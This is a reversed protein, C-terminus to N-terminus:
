GIRVKKKLAALEDDIESGGPKGGSGGGGGGELQAFKSELDADSMGGQRLADDVERAAAVEAVHGEIKDEMRRFEAFAGAGSGRAGLGEAGGGAKAQKIQAAITGKRAELEQQKAEMRELERKMNLAAARQEARLAEARDREGVVRKKQVLAERALAEDGAKLALEARREWKETDADLEDVKKRLVKEAAVAEVLEKRAARIQDKMEEVILDVSKKPDEAKDLLANVNSSIVKGMRDFIGM